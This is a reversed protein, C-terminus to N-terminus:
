NSEAKDTNECYWDHLRKSKHSGKGADILIEKLKEIQAEIDKIREAQKVEKRLNGDGFAKYKENDSELESIRADQKDRYKQLVTISLHCECTFIDSM